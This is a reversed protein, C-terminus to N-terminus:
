FQPSFFPYFVGEVADAICSLLVKCWSFTSLDRAVTDLVIRHCVMTCPLRYSKPSLKVWDQTQTEMGRVDGELRMSAVHKVREKNLTRYIDAECVTRLSAKHWSDKLFCMTPKMESPCALCRRTARGFPSLSARQYRPPPIFTDTRNQKKDQVRIRLFGEFSLPTESRKFKAGGYWTSRHYREFANRVPQPLGKKHLEVM